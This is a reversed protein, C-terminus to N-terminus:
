DSVSVTVSYNGADFTVYEREDFADATHLTTDRVEELTIDLM